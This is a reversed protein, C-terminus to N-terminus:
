RYQFVPAQFTDRIGIEILVVKWVTAVILLGNGRKAVFRAM